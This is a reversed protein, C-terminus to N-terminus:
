TSCFSLADNTFDNLSKPGTSDMSSESEVDDIIWLQRFFRYLTAIGLIRGEFHSIPDNDHRLKSKSTSSKGVLISKLSPVYPRSLPYPDFCLLKLVYNMETLYDTLGMILELYPSQKFNSITSCHRDISVSYTLIM